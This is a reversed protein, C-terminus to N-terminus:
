DDGERESEILGDLWATVGHPDTSYTELADALRSSEIYGLPVVERTLTEGWNDVSYGIIDLFLPFPNGKDTHSFNLSWSWLAVLSAFRDPTEETYTWVSM